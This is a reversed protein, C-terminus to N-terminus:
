KPESFLAAQEAKQYMTSSIMAFESILKKLMSRPSSGCVMSYNIVFINYRCNLNFNMLVSVFRYNTCALYLTKDTILCVM